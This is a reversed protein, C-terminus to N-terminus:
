YYGSVDQGLEAFEQQCGDPLEAYLQECVPDAWAPEPEVTPALAAELFTNCESEDDILRGAIHRIAEETTAVSTLTDGGGLFSAFWKIDDASIDVKNALCYHSLPIGPGTQQFVIGCGPLGGFSELHLSLPSRCRHPLIVFDDLVLIHDVVIQTELGVDFGFVEQDDIHGLRVLPWGM